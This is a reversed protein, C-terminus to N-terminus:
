GLTLNPEIDLMAKVQEAGLNPQGLQAINAAVLRMGDAFYEHEPDGSM